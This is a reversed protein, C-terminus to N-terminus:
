GSPKSVVPMGVSPAGSRVNEHRRNNAGGTTQCPRNLPLAMTIYLCLSKTHNMRQYHFVCVCTHIYIYVYIYVYIYIFM